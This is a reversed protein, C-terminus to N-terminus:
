KRYSCLKKMRRNERRFVNYVRRKEREPQKDYMERMYRLIIFKPLVWAVWPLPRYGFMMAQNRETNMLIRKVM